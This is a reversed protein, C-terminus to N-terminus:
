REGRLWAGLRLSQPVGGPPEWHFSLIVPLARYDDNRSEEDLVGDGNLDYPLGYAPLAADERLVPPLGVVATFPVDVRVRVPGLAPPIPFDACYATVPWTTGSAVKSPDVREWMRAYLGEWDQDARLRELFARATGLAVSRAEETRAFKHGALVSSALALISLAIVSAAILVEIASFGSRRRHARRRARWHMFRPM